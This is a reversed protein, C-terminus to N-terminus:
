ALDWNVGAIHQSENIIVLYWRGPRSFRLPTTGVVLVGEHLIAAMYPEGAELLRRNDEDVIAVTVLDTAVVRLTMRTGRAVGFPADFWKGTPIDWHNM